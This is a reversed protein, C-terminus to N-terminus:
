VHARGIEKERSDVSFDLPAYDLVACKFSPGGEKNAKLCLSAAINGGASHGGLAMRDPDIGFDGAHASVYEIVDLIDEKDSPYKNEPALRYSPCIVVVGLEDSM